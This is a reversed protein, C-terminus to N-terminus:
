CASVHGAVIHWPEGEERAWVRTHGYTSFGEADSM